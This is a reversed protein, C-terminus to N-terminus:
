RCLQRSKMWLFPETKYYDALHSGVAANYHPLRGRDIPIGACCLVYRESVMYYLVFPVRIADYALRCLLQM